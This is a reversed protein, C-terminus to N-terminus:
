AEYDFEPYLEKNEVPEETENEIYFFFDESIFPEKESTDTKPAEGPDYDIKVKLVEKGLSEAYEALNLANVSLYNVKQLSKRDIYIIASECKTIVWKCMYPYYDEVKNIDAPIIITDFPEGPATYDPTYSNTCLVFKTEPYAEKIKYIAPTVRGNYICMPLTIFTVKGYKEVFDAMTRTLSDILEDEYWQIDGMLACYKM